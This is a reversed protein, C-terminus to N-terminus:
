RPMKRADIWIPSRVSAGHEVEISRIPGSVAESWLVLRYAGEPVRSIRYNGEADVASYYPSESVFIVARESGHLSCYIRIVGPNELMLGPSNEGSFLEDDRVELWYTFPQHLVGGEFVVRVRQGPSGAVLAPEIRGNSTFTLSLDGSAREAAVRGKPKLYVVAAGLPREDAPANLVQLQGHVRASPVVVIEPEIVEVPEVDATEAPFRWSCGLGLVAV